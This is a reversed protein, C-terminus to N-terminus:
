DAIIHLHFKEFSLQKYIIRGSVNVFGDDMVVKKDLKWSKSSFMYFANTCVISPGIPYGYKGFKQSIQVEFKAGSESQIKEIMANAEALEVRIYVKDKLKELKKKTVRVVIKGFVHGDDYKHLKVRMDGELLKELRRSSKLIANNCPKELYPSLIGTGWDAVTAIKSILEVCNIVFSTQPLITKDTKKDEEPLFTKKNTDNTPKYPNPHDHCFYNSVCINFIRMDIGVGIREIILLFLDYDVDKVTDSFYLLKALTLRMYSSSHVSVTDIQKMVSEPTALIEVVKEPVPTALIDHSDQWRTRFYPAGIYRPNELLEANSKLWMKKDEDEYKVYCGKPYYEDEHYSKFTCKSHEHIMVRLIERVFENRGFIDIWCYVLRPYHEYLLKEQKQKRRTQHTPYEPPQYSM